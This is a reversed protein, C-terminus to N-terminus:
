VGLLFYYWIPLTIFSIPIGIGMMMTALDKDLDYQMAIIGATIMPGM